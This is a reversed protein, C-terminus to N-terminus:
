KEAPAKAAPKRLLHKLIKGTSSHPLGRRFEVYRPCKYAELRSKCFSILEEKTTAQSDHLVVYARVEEGYSHDPTGIVACEKVNSHQLLCREVELPYVSFGGKTILDAKRDVLYLYGDEDMRGMDGTHLWGNRLAAATEDERRYYGKMVAAGRAVIEGIEGLPLECDNEDFIAVEVGPVQKGVSGPKHAIGPRDTAVLPMCESLGYAAFVPKGFRSELSARLEDDLPAGSVIFARLAEVSPERATSADTATGDHGAPNEGALLQRLMEPVAVFHTIKEEAIAALAEEPHFRPMLVSCAGAALPVNMCLMQGLSHFLPLCAAFRHDPEARFAEWCSLVAAALGEHTLIAGRSQGTTGATYQLVAPDEPQINGDVKTAGPTAILDTLDLIEPDGPRTLREVEPKGLFVLHQCHDLGRVAPLVRRAFGQWAIMGKVEADKLLYRIEAEKVTVRIPVVVVGLRFLAHYSIPFQPLNPLMLAVHDGRTLGIGALGSALRTVANLFSDYSLRTTGCVFAERDAHKLASRDLLDVLSRAIM